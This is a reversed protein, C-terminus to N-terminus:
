DLKTTRKKLKAREATITARLKPAAAAWTPSAAWIADLKLQIADTYNQHSGSHVANSLCVGNDGADNMNWGGALAAVVLPHDKAALPIIHHAQETSKCALSRRLAARARNDPDFSALKTLLGLDLVGITSGTAKKADISLGPVLGLYKLKRRVIWKKGKKILSYAAKMDKTQFDTKKVGKTRKKDVWERIRGARDLDEKTGRRSVRLADGIKKGYLGVLKRRLSKWDPQVTGADAQQDVHTLEHALLRRGDRSEPQYRGRAFYVDAGVTFADVGLADAAAAAPEDSHMRAAGVEFGLADGLEDRPSSALPAGHSRTVHREARALARDGPESAGPRRRGQAFASEFVSPLAAELESALDTVVEAVGEVMAKLTPELLKALARIADNLADLADKPILKAVVNDAVATDVGLASAAKVGLSYPPPIMKLSAATIARALDSYSIFEDDAFATTSLELKTVLGRVQGDIAGALETSAKGILTTVDAAGLNDIDAGADMLDEISGLAGVLGMVGGFAAQFKGRVVFIPKLLLRVKELLRGVKVAIALVGKLSANKAKAKKKPAAIAWAGLTDFAANEELGLMIELLREGSSFADVIEGRKDALEALNRVTEMLARYEGDSDLAEFAAELVDIWSQPLKLIGLWGYKSGAVKKTATGDGDTAKDDSAPKDSDKPPADPDKPPDKPDKPPADPDKPPDKPDKPPADPDKPPDKPPAKPDKPPADPDTAPPDKPLSVPDVNADPPLMLNGEADFEGYVGEKDPPTPPGKGEGAGIIQLRLLAVGKLKKWPFTKLELPQLAEYSKFTLRKTSPSIEVEYVGDPIDISDFKVDTFPLTEVAKGSADYLHLYGIRRGAKAAKKKKRRQIPGNIHGGQQVVHTLEHALLHGGERTAPQYEHAGFFVHTGHTFARASVADALRAATADDHIRVAGFDWGFSREMSARTSAPLPSGGRMGVDLARTFGEPAEDPSRRGPRRLLQLEDDDDPGADELAEGEMVRAANAEAEAEAPDDPSGLRLKPQILPADDDDDREEACATCARQITPAAIAITALSWPARAAGPGVAARTTPSAATATAGDPSESRSPM